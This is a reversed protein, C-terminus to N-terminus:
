ARESRRASGDLFSDVFAQETLQKKLDGALLKFLEQYAARLEDPSQSAAGGNLPLRQRWVLSDLLKHRVADFVDLASRTMVGVALSMATEGAGADAKHWYGCPIYLVDGARLTAQMLPMIEREYHMDAPLTERLPWPNVTNKRLSYTKEGATQLIFVDEADYHWSFGKEGSPTVFMQVDVPGCFTREFEAALEGLDARHREAHRVVITHGESSLRLAAAANQPWAGRYPEGDRLILVKADADALAAEVTSWNGLPCAGGASGTLALPLRFLYEDVFKALPFDGLIDPVTM